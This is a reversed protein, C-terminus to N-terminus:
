LNRRIKLVFLVLNICVHTIAGLVIYSIYKLATIKSFLCLVFTVGILSDIQDLIFFVFGKFGKDTKGPQIDLRRKVFSNPLECIMYAFGILCGVLINYPFTNKHLLYFENYQNLKFYNCILGIFVQFFVSFVVMSVFGIWTKNDGFIRRGDKCVMFFDIPKNYKKYLKTKTFIMNAIGALILSSLTLYMSIVM